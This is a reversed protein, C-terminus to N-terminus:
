YLSPRVWLTRTYKRTLVLTLNTTQDCFNITVELYDSEYYNEELKITRVKIIDGFLKPRIIPHITTHLNRKFKWFKFTRIELYLKDQLYNIIATRFIRKLENLTVDVDYLHIYALLTKRKDSIQSSNVDNINIRM